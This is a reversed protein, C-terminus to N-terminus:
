TPLKREACKAGVVHILMLKEKRRDSDSKHYDRAGSTMQLHLGLCLAVPGRLESDVTTVLGINIYSKLTKRCVAISEWRTPKGLVTVTTLPTSPVSWMLANAPVM